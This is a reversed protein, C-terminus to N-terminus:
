SAPTPTSPSPTPTVPTQSTTTNPQQSGTNTNTTKGPLTYEWGDKVVISSGSGAAAAATQGVVPAVAPASVVNSNKFLFLAGAVLALSFAGFGLWTVSSRSHM